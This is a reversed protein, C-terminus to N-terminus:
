LAPVQGACLAKVVEEMQHCPNCRPHSCPPSPALALVRQSAASAAVGGWITSLPHRQAPLSNRRQQQQWSLCLPLLPRPVPPMRNQARPPDGVEASSARAARTLSVGADLEEALGTQVNLAPSRPMRPVPRVVKFVEREEGLRRCHLGCRLFLRSM